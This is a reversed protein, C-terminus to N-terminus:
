WEKFFFIYVASSGNGMMAKGVYAMFGHKNFWISTVEGSNNQRLFVLINEDFSFFIRLWIRLIHFWGCFENSSIKWKSFHDYHCATNVLSIEQRYANLTYNAKLILNGGKRFWVYIFLCMIVKQIIEKGRCRYPM